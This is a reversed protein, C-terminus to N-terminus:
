KTTHLNFGRVGGDNIIKLCSPELYIAFLLPSAPCGQRVSSLVPISGTVNKNIILQTCCHSYAMRVGQIIVDGVNIHELICFLIEHCVRDFAKEFDIQLMAVRKFFMDCCELVSRAVHVNTVISRGKIGCTQHPGVVSTIVSQLRQALIKMLIKYDVNALTIPRYGSVSQLKVRDESKPILVTHTRGFSPPLVKSEYAERFVMFLFPTVIDSFRKYFDAGLGDPGPSKGVKLESIATQIEGLSIPRELEERM